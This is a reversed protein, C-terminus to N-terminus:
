WPSLKPSSPPSCTREAQRHRQRRRSSPRTLPAVSACLPDEGANARHLIPMRQGPTPTKHPPRAPPAAPASLSSAPANVSGREDCRNRPQLSQTSRSSAARTVPRPSAAMTNALIAASTQSPRAGIACPAPPEHSLTPLLHWHVSESPSMQSKVSSDPSWWTVPGPLLMQVKSHSRVKM